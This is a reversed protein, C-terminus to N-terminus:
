RQLAPGQRGTGTAHRIMLQRLPAFRAAVDIGYGRLQRLIPNRNGYLRKLVDTAGLMLLNDAKRARQYRRLYALAGADRDAARGAALAATLEAVDLLGLNIGYGAMPHVVHAADGVLAVRARCYSEAHQLRLPFSARREIASVRGLVGGSAATLRELFAADGLEALGHAVADDAHWALSCRGDALPLFAVPGSPTYRQWATHRHYKETTVAGVTCRQHYPWGTTDIGAHRRVVSEAGEAGIVLDATLRSGDDLTLAVHRRDVVIDDVGAPCHIDVDTLNRWASAVLLGNDIIHGLDPLGLETHELLLARAPDDEWVQMATFPCARHEAVFDWLGLNDLIRKQAPAIASQRLDYPSDPDFEAPRRLEVLAVAFGARQLAVAQVAGILGGGVVVVDYQTKM